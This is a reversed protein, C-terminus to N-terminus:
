VWGMLADGRSNYPLGHFFCEDRTGGLDLLISGVCHRAYELAITSLDPQQFVFRAAWEWDSQNQDKGSATWSFDYLSIKGCVEMKARLNLGESGVVEHPMVRGKITAVLDFAQSDPLIKTSNLRENMQIQCSVRIWSALIASRTDKGLEVEPSSIAPSIALTPDRLLQQTQCDTHVFQMLGHVKGEPSAYLSDSCFNLTTVPNDCQLKESPSGDTLVGCAKRHIPLFAWYGCEGHELKFEATVLEAPLPTESGSWPSHLGVRLANAKRVGLQAKWSQPRLLLTIEPSVACRRPGVCYTNPIPVEPLYSWESSNECFCMCLSKNESAGISDMNNWGGCTGDLKITNISSCNVNPRYTHYLTPFLGYCKSPPTSNTSRSSSRPLM